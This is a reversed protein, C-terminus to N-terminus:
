DVELVINLKTRDCLFILYKMTLHPEQKILTPRTIQGYNTAFHLFTMIKCHFFLILNHMLFVYGEIDLMKPIDLYKEAIEFAVKM